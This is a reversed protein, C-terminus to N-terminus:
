RRPTAPAAGRPWSRPSRGCWGGGGVSGSVSICAASATYPWAISAYTGLSRLSGHGVDDHGLHPLRDGFARDRLPESRPSRTSRSSGEELDGGVLHVRLDRGAAPMRLSIRTAGPVVTGHVGDHADDRGLGFRGGRRRRPGRGGGGTAGGGRPEAVEQRRAGTRQGDSGRGSGSCRRDFELDLALRADVAGAASFGRESIVASSSRRVREDGTTRRIAASCWDVDAADRAGADPSPDRLLVDEACRSGGAAGGIGGCRRRAQGRRAPRRERRRGRGSRASTESGFSSPPACPARSASRAWTELDELDVHGADVLEPLLV